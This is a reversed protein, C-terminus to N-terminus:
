KPIVKGKCFIYKRKNFTKRKFHKRHYALKIDSITQKPRLLRKTLATKNGNVPFHHKQCIAKLQNIDLNKIENIPYPNIKDEVKDKKNKNKRLRQSHSGWPTDRRNYKRKVSM